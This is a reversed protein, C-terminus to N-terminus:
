NSNNKDSDNLFTIQRVKIKVETEFLVEFINWEINIWDFIMMKFIQKFDKVFIDKMTLKYKYSVFTSLLYFYFYFYLFFKHVENFTLIFDNFILVSDWFELVQLIYCWGDSRTWCFGLSETLWSGAIKFPQSRGSWIWYMRWTDRVTGKGINVLLSFVSRFENKSTEEIAKEAIVVCQGERRRM